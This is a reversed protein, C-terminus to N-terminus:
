ITDVLCYFFNLLEVVEFYAWFLKPLLFTVVQDLVQLFFSFLLHSLFFVIKGHSEFCRQCVGVVVKQSRLCTTTFLTIWM